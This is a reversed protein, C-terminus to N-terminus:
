EGAMQAAYRSLRTTIKEIELLDMQASRPVTSPPVQASLDHAKQAAYDCFSAVEAYIDRYPNM